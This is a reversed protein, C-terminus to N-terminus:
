MGPATGAANRGYILASRLAAHRRRRRNKSASAKLCQQGEDSRAAGCRWPCRQRGVGGGGDCRVEPLAARALSIRRKNAGDFRAMRAM